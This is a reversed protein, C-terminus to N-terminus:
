GVASEAVGGVREVCWRPCADGLDLPGAPSRSTVAVPAGEHTCHWASCGDQAQWVAVVAVLVVDVERAGREGVVHWGACGAQLLHDLARGGGAAWAGCHV